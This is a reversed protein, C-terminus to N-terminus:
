IWKALDGDGLPILMLCAGGMCLSLISFRPDFLAHHQRHHPMRSNLELCQCGMSTGALKATAYIHMTDFPKAEPWVRSVMKVERRPQDRVEPGACGRGM